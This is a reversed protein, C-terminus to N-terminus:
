FIASIAKCVIWIFLVLVAMSMINTLLTNNTGETKNAKGAKYPKLNNKKYDEIVEKRFAEYKADTEAKICDSIAIDSNYRLQEMLAGEALDLEEKYNRIFNDRKDKAIEINEYKDNIHAFIITIIHHIPVDEVNICPFTNVLYDEFAERDYIGLEEYHTDFYNGMYQRLYSGIYTYMIKIDSNSINENIIDCTITNSRTSLYEEFSVAFGYKEAVVHITNYSREITTYDWKMFNNDIFTTLNNTIKENCNRKGDRIVKDVNNVAFEYECKLNAIEKKYYKVTETPDDNTTTKTTSATKQTESLKNIADTASKLQSELMTIKDNQQKANYRAEAEAMRIRSNELSRDPMRNRYNEVRWLNEAANRVEDSTMSKGWNFNDAM